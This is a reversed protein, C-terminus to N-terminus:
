PQLITPLTNKSAAKLTPTVSAKQTKQTETRAINEPTWKTKTASLCQMNKQHVFACLATSTKVSLGAIELHHEMFGYSSQYANLWLQDHDVTQRFHQPLSEFFLQARKQSNFIGIRVSSNTNDNTTAYASAGVLITACLLLILQKVTDFAM